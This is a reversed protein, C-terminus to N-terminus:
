GPWGAPVTPTNGAVPAFSATFSGHAYVNGAGHTASSVVAWHSITGWAGSAQDFSVAGAQVIARAAAANFTIAKRVYGAANAVESMAAGTAADTPDGTCLALFVTAAPVFAANCLHDLWENEIFDTVSGM